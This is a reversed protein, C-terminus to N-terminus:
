FINNLHSLLFDLGNCPQAFQMTAISDAWGNILGGGTLEPNLRGHTASLWPKFHVLCRLSHISPVDYRQQTGTAPTSELGPLLPRPGFLLPTSYQDPVQRLMPPTGPPLKALRTQEKM